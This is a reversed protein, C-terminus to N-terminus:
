QSQERCQYRWTDKCMEELSKEAVFGLLDKAKTPDTYSVANDGPRRPGISYPVPINNAQKFTEIVELVSYGKGTGLNFIRCGPNKAAYEMSKVHGCALDVVHIYDRIGTGDDTDYDNGRVIVEKHIGAATQSIFPVLNSPIGQPNEGIIGSPHAGAPNFYRLLVVSVNENATSYDQLIQECMFKTWGYPNIAGLPSDEKLPMPCDGRYVTASSSFIIKGVKFEDMLLCLNMTSVINNEYYMLPKEVSEAVAKFGAFHIVCDIKHASFISRLGDIDLLDTEYFPFDSKTIKMVGKISEMSSNSFNDVVIIDHGAKILEVCTHSGIYGAGGTVLVNM